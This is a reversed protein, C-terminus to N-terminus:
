KNEAGFVALVPRHDSASSWDPLSFVCSEDRHWERAMGKSLLIYDVRSYSDERAYFYTWTIQSSKREAPRTDVLASAGKSIITRIAASDKTDNLDGLVVLNAEPNAKLVAEIKSRLLTAEQERLEAQNGEPVPVKSKLHTTILTFVYSPNVQIQVEAFGRGARFRRGYLLFSDNTHPKRAIIPFRSLVAIQINTDHAIIHEWHPYPVEARLSQLAEIGGIEQLALVDADLALLAERVKAKGEVSKAPRSGSQALLYNNVNYTAVRFTEAGFLSAGCLTWLGLARLLM